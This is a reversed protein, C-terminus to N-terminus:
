AAALDEQHQYEAQLARASELSLPSFFYGGGSKGCAEQLLLAKGSKKRKKKITLSAELGQNQYELLKTHTSARHILSEVEQMLNKNHNAV